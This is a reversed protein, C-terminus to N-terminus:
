SSLPNPVHLCKERRTVKRDVPELRLPDGLREALAEVTM